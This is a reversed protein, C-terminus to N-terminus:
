AHTRMWERFCAMVDMGRHGDLSVIFKVLTGTGGAKVLLLYYIERMAEVEYDKTM